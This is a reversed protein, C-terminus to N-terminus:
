DPLRLSELRMMTMMQPILAQTPTHTHTHHHTHTTHTHTHTTTHTHTHTHHTHTHTHTTHTHTYTHTTTHTHPPPPPHTPTTPMTHTHPTDCWKSPLLNGVRMMALSPSLPPRAELAPVVRQEVEEEVPHHVVQPTEIHRMTYMYSHMHVTLTCTHIRTYACM